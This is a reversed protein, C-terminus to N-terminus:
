QDKIISEYAIASKHNMIATWDDIFGWDASVM